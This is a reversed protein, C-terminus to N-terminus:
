MRTVRLRVRGMLTVLSSEKKLGFVEGSLVPMSSAAVGNAVETTRVTASLCAIKVM